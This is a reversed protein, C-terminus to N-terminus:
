LKGAIRNGIIRTVENFEHIEKQLQKAQERFFRARGHENDVAQQLEAIQKEHEKQVDLLKGIQNELDNCIHIREILRQELSKLREAYYENKYLKLIKIM